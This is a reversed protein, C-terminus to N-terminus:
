TIAQRVHELFQLLGKRDAASLKAGVDLALRRSLNPLTDEEVGFFDKLNRVWNYLDLSLGASNIKNAIDGKSGGVYDRIHLLDRLLAARVPEGARIAIALLDSTETFLDKPSLGFLDKVANAWDLSPTAEKAPSKKKTGPLPM